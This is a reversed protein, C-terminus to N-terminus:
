IRAIDMKIEMAFEMRLQNQAEAAEMPISMSMEVTMNANSKVLRGGAPSFYLVIWGSLDMNGSIPPIVQRANNQSQVAGQIGKMIQSMDMSCRCTQKIKAVNENNVSADNALLTSVLDMNGGFLPMPIVQKWSQGVKVPISPFEGGLYGMQGMLQTMDMGPLGMASMMDNIGDVSLVRGERTMTMTIPKGFMEAGMNMPPTEPASFKFDSYNVQIRASGDPFVDLVKMTMVMSAKSSINGFSEDIISNPKISTNLGIRYKDVQGKTFKYELKVSEEAQAASLLMLILLASIVIHAIRKM